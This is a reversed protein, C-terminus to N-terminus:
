KFQLPLRKCCEKCSKAHFDKHYIHSLPAQKANDSQERSHDTAASQHKDFRGKEAMKKIELNENKMRAFTHVVSTAACFKGSTNPVENGNMDYLARKERFVDFPLWENETSTPNPLRPDVLTVDRFKNRFTRELAAFNQDCFKKLVNTGNSSAGITVYRKGTVKDEALAIGLMANMPVYDANNECSAWYKDFADFNQFITDGMEDNFVGISFKDGKEDVYEYKSLFTNEGIIKFRRQKDPHMRKILKNTKSETGRGGAAFLLANAADPHRQRIWHESERVKDFSKSNSEVHQATENRLDTM